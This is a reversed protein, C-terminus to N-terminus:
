AKDKSGEEQSKEHPKITSRIVMIKNLADFWFPAGLSIAVATLIWGLIMSPQHFVWAITNAARQQFTLPTEGPATPPAAPWGIPLGLDRINKVADNAATIQKDIPLAPTSDGPSAPADAAPPKAASSAAAVISQRLTSDNSLQRLIHITDANMSVAIALGIWLLVTQTRYKYRGSVRDMGSNFWDEISKQLKAADNGAMAIM